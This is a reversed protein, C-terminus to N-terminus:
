PPPPCPLGQASLSKSFIAKLASRQYCFPNYRQARISTISRQASISILDSRKASIDFHAPASLPLLPDSRQAGIDFITPPSLPSTLLSRLASRQRGM